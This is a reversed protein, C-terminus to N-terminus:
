RTGKRVTKAASAVWAALYAHEDVDGPSHGILAQLVRFYTLSAVLVAATAEPDTVHIRRDLHATRLWESLERYLAVLLGNWLVDLLDPFQELDRLGVRVVARDGTMAAFVTHAIATLAAHPDPPLSAILESAARELEDVYRRIGEALLDRKSAFHKYLAGSGPALGCARQVDAVSTADYGREGFLQMAADVLEDRRMTLSYERVMPLFLKRPVSRKPSGTGRQPMVETISTATVAGGEVGLVAPAPM